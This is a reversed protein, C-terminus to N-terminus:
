RSLRRATGAEAKAVSPERWADILTRVATLVEQNEATRASTTQVATLAIILAMTRIMARMVNGM